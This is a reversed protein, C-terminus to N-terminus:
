INSFWQWINKTVYPKTQIDMKSIIKQQECTRYRNQKKNKGNSKGYVTSNILNYFKKGDKYGSKETEIKETHQVWCIIKEISISQIRICSKNKQKLGPTLYLLM